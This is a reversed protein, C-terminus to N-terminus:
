YRSYSLSTGADYSVDVETDSERYFPGDVSAIKETWVWGLTSYM